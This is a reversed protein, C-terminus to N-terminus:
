PKTDSSVIARSGLKRAARWATDLHSPGGDLWILICSVAKTRVPPLFTAAGASQLRLLDALSLGLCSVVGLHLLDRRSLGDCRRFPLRKSQM